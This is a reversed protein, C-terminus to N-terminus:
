WQQESGSRPHRASVRGAAGGSCARPKGQNGPVSGCSRWGTGTTRIDGAALFFNVLSNVDTM